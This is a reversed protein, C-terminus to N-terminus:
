WSENSTQECSSALSGYKLFVYMQVCASALIWILRCMRATQIALSTFTNNM